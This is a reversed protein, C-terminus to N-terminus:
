GWCRSSCIARPMASSRRSSAMAAASMSESSSSAPCSSIAEGGPSSFLAATASCAPCPGSCSAAWSRGSM